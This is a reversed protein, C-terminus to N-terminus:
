AAKYGITPRLASGSHDALATHRTTSSVVANNDIKFVSVIQALKDAQDRLSQSAAAAEEVLAANQQTVQDMQGIATNVQEIGSSQEQSAAMIENM